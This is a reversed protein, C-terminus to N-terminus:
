KQVKRLAACVRRVAESMESTAPAAWGQEECWTRMDGVLASEKKPVAVRSTRPDICRRAIEGDISHWDHTTVPGRRRELQRSVDSQQAATKTPTAPIPYLRDLDARWVFLHAGENADWGHIRLSPVLVTWQEWDSRNLPTETRKGDPSFQVKKSRLEGTRLDENLYKGALNPDRAFIMIQDFANPLAVWEHRSSTLPTKKPKRV